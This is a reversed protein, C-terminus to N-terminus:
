KTVSLFLMLDELYPLGPAQVNGAVGEFALYVSNNFSRITVEHGKEVQAGATLRPATSRNLDEPDHNVIIM